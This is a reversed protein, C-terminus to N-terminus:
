ALEVPERSHALAERARAVDKEMQAVLAEISDFRAEDRLRSVFDFAVHRGYLDGDFDLVYAEAVVKQGDFTPNTGVSIAASMREGDMRFYGAYIGTAPLLQLPDTKLNATPFGIQRGRGAGHVVVGPVGPYHGLLESAAAVDGAEILTRARTSSIEEGGLKQRAVVHVGFGRSQGARILYDITGERNHGFAFDAGIWVEQLNM